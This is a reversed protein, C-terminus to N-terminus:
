HLMSKDIQVEKIFGKLIKRQAVDDNEINKYLEKCLTLYETQM